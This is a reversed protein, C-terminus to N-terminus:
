IWPVSWRLKNPISGARRIFTGLLYNVTVWGLSGEEKGDLIRAGSLKKSVEHFIQQTKPRM